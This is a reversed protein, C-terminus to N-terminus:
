YQVSEPTVGRGIRMDYFVAFSVSRIVMKGQEGLRGRLRPLAGRRHLRCRPLAGHRKGNASRGTVRPGKM